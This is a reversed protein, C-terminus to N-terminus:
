TSGQGLKNSLQRRLVDLCQQGVAVGEIVHRFRYFCPNAHLKMAALIVRQGDNFRCDTVVKARGSATAGDGERQKIIEARDHGSFLIKIIQQSRLVMDAAPGAVRKIQRWGRQQPRM